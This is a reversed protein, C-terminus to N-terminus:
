IRDLVIRVIGGPDAVGSAAPTSTFALVDGAAVVKNAATASLTLAKPNFAEFSNASTSTVTAVSATGAGAAGKNVVAFTRNNATAGTIAGAAIYHVSAVTAAFPAVGAVFTGTADAANPGAPGEIVHVLPATDPM